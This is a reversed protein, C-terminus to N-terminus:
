VRAGGMLIDEDVDGCKIRSMLALVDVPVAADVVVDGFPPYTGAILISALM